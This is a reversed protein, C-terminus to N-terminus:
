NERFIKIEKKDVRQQLWLKLKNSQEKSLPKSSKFVLIPIIKLSDTGEFFEHNAMSLNSIEPFLIKTEKLLDANNYKNIEIIKKLSAIQVDKQNINNQGKNIETLISRKFDTTDQKIIFKTNKIGLSQALKNISDIEKSNFKKTLFALEVRKPNTKTYIKNFILTYGKNEFESKVFTNVKNMFTKEQVLQYAFYTSPVIMIFTLIYITYKIRKAYLSNQYILAPYKLYKVIIFTSICIFVCNISYLFLAGFFYSMNGIALGYGATCLPPMLATAIAVGPIPNGKEQRTIAIAGVLGGFFAIIVDYITPSTRSLLESQTEKFPSLSFYIFSVLLSVVTAVLLNKLSKKLLSFDYTGLSFGAGIIPGMLPSILMAGIIVAPSNVNLGVSAVVIAGALVWLNSGRFTINAKVEGLVTNKYESGANLDLFKGIEKFDFM